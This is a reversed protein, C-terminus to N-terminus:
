EENNEEETPEKQNNEEQAPKEEIFEEKVPEAKSKPQQDMLDKVRKINQYFADGMPDSPNIKGYGTKYYSDAMKYDKGLEYFRGMYYDGLPSEPHKILAFDGLVRLYDGNQQDAVISEIAYFDRLRVNLNTGYLYDIDIYKKELYEIASLPDLDKIKENYEKKSISEYLNFIQSFAKSVAEGISSVPNLSNKYYDFKLDFNKFEYSELGTKMENFVQTSEEGQFGTNSLYLFFTNDINKLKELGYSHIMKGYAQKLQPNLLVYSNFVPTLEDIFYFAFNASQRDAIITSFPSTKYSAKLYKILDDKIFNYFITSNKTLGLSEKVVSVDQNIGTNTPIGVIIQKPALDEQAFLQANGVAIDFLYNDNLVITVPYKHITDKEYGKPVYIKVNKNVGNKLRFNKINIKQAVISLSILVFLFSAIKRM